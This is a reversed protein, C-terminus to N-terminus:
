ILIDDPSSREIRIVRWKGARKQLVIYYTELTTDFRAHVETASDVHIDLISSRPAVTDLKERAALHVARYDAQSLTPPDAVRATPRPGSACATLCGAAVFLFVALVRMRDLSTVFCGIM